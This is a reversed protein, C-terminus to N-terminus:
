ETIRLTVVIDPKGAESWQLQVWKDGIEIVQFGKVRDGVRVLTDDILCRTERGSQVISQLRLEAAKRRVQQQQQLNQQETEQQAVEETRKRQAEEAQRRAEAAALDRVMAEPTGASSQVKVEVEAPPPEVPQTPEPTPTPQADGTAAGSELAFPNKVLEDVAVQVVASYDHFKKVIEDMSSTMEASVGTLRGIAAEITSEPNKTPAAAAAKPQCKRVMLGLGALGVVFLVIVVVTSQRTRQSKGAVTLYEQTGTQPTPEAAAQAKPAQGPAEQQDRMFSLM